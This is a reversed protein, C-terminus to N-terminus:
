GFALVEQRMRKAAIECYKEELEIGIARRNLDKAARLTTGSGMFPDLILDGAASWSHVHDKALDEPFIAPHEFIYKEKASKMFGPSYRWVNTRISHSPVVHSGSGTARQLSGDRRRSRQSVSMVSGATANRADRLLTVSRPENKSFIFMYEFAAYYRTHSPYTCALKEYIMTDHLRFGIEKFRLAQKFSTGSESGDKTQDGVVWVVVGGPAVVRWLLQATEEFSWQLDGYTRLDDYPPSTVVLDIGMELSPLVERCDGHYITVASDQYYPKM